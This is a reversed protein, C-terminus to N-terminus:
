ALPRLVLIQGGNVSIYIWGEPSVAVGLPHRPWFGSTRYNMEEVSFGVVRGTESPILAEAQAPQGADDFHLAWLAFGRLAVHEASGGQVMLLNNQLAPFASGRYAAMGLPNSATPFTMVPAAAQACDFDGELDPMNEAGVCYPWGFHAGPTVRNLEDLNATDFLGARASDNVWLEGNLFALGVPQRLGEAVMQRDSGDLAFSYIVGRGSDPMCFDCNAGTAVYIRTDPGVALGGTWFGAGTPLDDVLTVLENAQWRYLHAGGTIYLAGEYFALGNPTTLGDILVGSEDPLGDGDADTLALVQGYLPRTAYLTGDEGVALASFALQGASEDNFVEELCFRAGDVWPPDIHQPRQDCPPITLSQAQASFPLLILLLVTYHYLVSYSLQHLRM